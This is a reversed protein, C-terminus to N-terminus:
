YDSDGTAQDQSEEDNGTPMSSSDTTGAPTTDTPAVAAPNGNNNSDIAGPNATADNAPPQSTTTVDDVLRPNSAIPAAHALSVAFLSSAVLAVLTKVKM